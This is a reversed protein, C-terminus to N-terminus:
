RYLTTYVRMDDDLKIIQNAFLYYYVLPICNGRNRPYQVPQEYQQDIGPETYGNLWEGQDDIMEDESLRRYEPVANWRARERDRAELMTLLSIM